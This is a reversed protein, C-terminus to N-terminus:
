KSLSLACAHVCARTPLLSLFGLRSWATLVSRSASSSSVLQSIMVHASTLLRISLQRLWGPVGPHENKYNLLSYRVDGIEANTFSFSGKRAPMYTYCWCRHSLYGTFLSLSTWSKYNKGCLKATSPLSHCWQAKSQQIYDRQDTATWLTSELYFSWEHLLCLAKINLSVSGSSM